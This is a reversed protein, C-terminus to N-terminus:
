GGVPLPAKDRDEAEPPGQGGKKSSVPSLLPIVRGKGFAAGWGRPGLFSEEAAQGGLGWDGTQM